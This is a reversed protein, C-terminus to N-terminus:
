TFKALEGILEQATKRTLIEKKEAILKKEFTKKKFLWGTEVPVEVEKTYEAYTVKEPQIKFNYTLYAKLTSRDKGTPLGYQLFRILINAITKKLAEYWYNPGGEARQFPDGVAHNREDLDSWNQAKELFASSLNIYLVGDDSNIKLYKSIEFARESWRGMQYAGELYENFFRTLDKPM